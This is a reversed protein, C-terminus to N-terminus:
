RARTVTVTITRSTGLDYPYAGDRPVRARFRHTRTSGLAPFRYRYSFRGRERGARVNAFTRWAGRDRVQLLVLKGRRPRPAGSLTGSFRITGGERLRSSSVTLKVPARVRLRTEASASDVQQQALPRYTVRLERSSGKALKRAYGGRPGTTVTATQRWPQRPAGVREWVALRAGAIRQGEPTTLEGELRTASGYKVAQPRRGDLRRGRQTVVRATLLARPVAVETPATVTVPQSGSAVVNGGTADAVLVRLSHTGAPVGALDVRFTRDVSLPCPVPQTFPPECFAFTRLPAGDLEVTAARVGGGTDAAAVRLDAAGGLPTAASVLPGSPAGLLRPASVDELAVQAAFIAVSAPTQNWGSGPGACGPLDDVRICGAQAALQVTGDAPAGEAVPALEDCSGPVNWPPCSEIVQEQEDPGLSVLRYGALAAWVNFFGVEEAYAGSAGRVLSYSAIETDAPARFTWQAYTGVPTWATDGSSAVLGALSCDASTALGSDPAPPAPEWGTFGITRGDPLRCSHVTYTAASAPACLIAVAVTTALAVALVALRGVSSARRLCALM